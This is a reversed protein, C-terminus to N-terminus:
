SAHAVIHYRCHTVLERAIGSTKIRTKRRGVRGEEVDKDVEVEEVEEDEEADHEIGEDETDGRLEEETEDLIGLEPLM